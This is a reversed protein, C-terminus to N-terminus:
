VQTMLESFADAAEALKNQDVHAKAQNFRLKLDPMSAIKGVLDSPEAKQVQSDAM